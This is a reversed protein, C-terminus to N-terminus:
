FGWGVSAGTAAGDVFQRVNMNEPAMRKARKYFVTVMLIGVVTVVGGTPLLVDTATAMADRTSVDAQRESTCSPDCADVLDADKAM